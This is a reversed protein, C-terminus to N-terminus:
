ARAADMTASCHLCFLQNEPMRAMNVDHKNPNFHKGCSTCCYIPGSSNDGLYRWAAHVVPKMKQPEDHEGM